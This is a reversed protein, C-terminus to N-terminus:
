PKEEKDTVPLYKKPSESNLDLSNRIVAYPILKKSSKLKSIVEKFSGLRAGKKAATELDTLAEMVSDWTFRVQGPINDEVPTIELYPELRITWQTEGLKQLCKNYTSLEPAVSNNKVIVIDLFSVLVVIGYVIAKTKGNGSILTSGRRGTLISRILMLQNKLFQVKYCEAKRNREKLSVTTTRAQNTVSVLQQRFYQLQGEWGVDTM